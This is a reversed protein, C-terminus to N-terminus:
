TSDINTVYQGYKSIKGRNARNYRKVAPPSPIMTTIPDSAPAQSPEDEPEVREPAENIGEVNLLLCTM